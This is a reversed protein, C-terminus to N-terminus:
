PLVCAERITVCISTVADCVADTWKDNICDSDKSCLVGPNTPTSCWHSDFGTSLVCLM